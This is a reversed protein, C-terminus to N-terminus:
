QNSIMLEDVVRKTMVRLIFKNRLDMSISRDTLKTMKVMEWWELNNQNFAQRCTKQELKMRRSPM